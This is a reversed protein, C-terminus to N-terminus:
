KKMGDYPNALPGDVYKIFDNIDAASMIRTRETTSRVDATALFIIKTKCQRLKAMEASGNIYDIMLSRVETARANLINYVKISMDMYGALLINPNHLISTDLYHLGEESIANYSLDVCLLTRNIDLASALWSVGHDTFNNKSLDISTLHTNNELAAAIEKLQADDINRNSLDLETLSPSDNQLQELYHANELVDQM